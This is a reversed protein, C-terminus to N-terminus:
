ARVWKMIERFSPKKGHMLLAVHFIKSALRLTVILSFFLVAMTSVIQIVSPASIVMRLIMLTPTLLPVYSLVAVLLSDPDQLVLIALAVPLIGIMSLVAQVPQIDQESSLVSGVVSFLGAYMLFGLIFYITFCILLFPSLFDLANGGFLAGLLGWILIQTLGVSGLGLIKGTMLEGPTVSSILIEIVRNNKEESIGRMFSGGSNFIAFFLMMVLIIGALYKEIMETEESGIRIMKLRATQTIDRIQEATLDLKKVNLEMVMANVANELTRFAILNESGKVYYPINQKDLATADFFLFGDVIGKQVLQSGALVTSDYTTFLVPIISISNAGENQMFASSLKLELERAALGTEDAVAITLTRKPERDALYTPILTFGIIVAPMFIMSFIFGKSRIKQLFEWVFVTLMKKTFM